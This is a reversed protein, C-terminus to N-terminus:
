ADQTTSQKEHLDPWENSQHEVTKKKMERKLTSYKNIISVKARVGWKLLAQVGRGARGLHAHGQAHTCLSNTIIVIIIGSARHTLFM